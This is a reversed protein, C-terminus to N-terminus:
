YYCDQTVQFEYELEAVERRLAKNEAGISEMAKYLADAMEGKNGAVVVRKGILSLAETINAKSLKGFGCMANSSM